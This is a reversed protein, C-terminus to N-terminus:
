VHERLKGDGCLEQFGDQKQRKIFPMKRGEERKQEIQRNSFTKKRKFIRM